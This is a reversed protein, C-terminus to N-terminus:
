NGERIDETTDDRVEAADRARKAEASKHGAESSLKKLKDPDEAKLKGFYGRTGLRAGMRGIRSHHDPGYKEKKTQAGRKNSEAKGAM